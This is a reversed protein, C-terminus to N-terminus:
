LSAKYLEKSRQALRKEIPSFYLWGNAGGIMVILGVTSVINWISDSVFTGLVLMLFGVASLLFVPVWLRTWMARRGIEATIEALAKTSAAEQLKSRRTWEPFRKWALAIFTGLILALPITWQVGYFKRAFPTIAIFFILMVVFTARMRNM